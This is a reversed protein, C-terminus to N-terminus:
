AGTYDIFGKLYPDSLKRRELRFVGVGTRSGNSNTNGELTMLRGSDLVREVLGAHGTGGGFDCVFVVGPKILSPNAYAESRQIRRVGHVEGARTWQELCAVVRPAPCPRILSSAATKFSWYVFAASWQRQAVTTHVPDIGVSKLYEDVMPGRNSAAPREMQGVQTSAIALAHLM